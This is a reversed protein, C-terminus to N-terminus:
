RVDYRVFIFYTLAFFLINFFVLWAADFLAGQALIQPLSRYRYSFSLFEKKRQIVNGLISNKYRIVESKFRSEEGIGTGALETAAYIFSAVPSIRNINKSLRILRNFKGRYDEELNDMENHITMFRKSVTEFTRNRDMENLLVESTWIQNRKESLGRVSPVDVMQRALLTGLNPIVFVLVAWIFLLIVISAAAKRTLTSILIGLSLFFAIYILSIALILILKILNDSSFHIEPDLNLLAFGLLTVLLFPVALSLFNGAWKGALVKARSLANSLLLRLTGQEKERSVQDFGFLLAVLSLVVRVVYLFDPTPFFSFIINGSVQGARATVGIVSIEFSRTMADDLGKAFISLPNPPIVAIPETPKPKILQYDALRHKYDRRMIFFSTFILIATLLIVIFFKYSLLNSVIEKKAVTWTM